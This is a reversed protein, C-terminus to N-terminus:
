LEGAARTYGANYLRRRAEEKSIRGFGIATVADLYAEREADAMSAGPGRQVAGGAPPAAPRAPAAAPPPIAAVAEGIPANTVPQGSTIQRVVEPPIGTPDITATMGDADTFAIPTKAQQYATRADSYGARAQSAAARAALDQQRANETEVLESGLTGAVAERDSLAGGGRLRTALIRNLMNVDAGPQRAMELAERSTALDQVNGAGQTVADFNGYGGRLLVGLAPDAGLTTLAPGLEGIARLSDEQIQAEAALKRARAVDDAQGWADKRAQQRVADRGTLAAVFDGIGGMNGVNLPRAM